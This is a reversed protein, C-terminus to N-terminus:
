AAGAGDAVKSFTYRGGNSDPTAEDALAPATLGAVLIGAFFRSFTKSPMRGPPQPSMRRTMKSSM